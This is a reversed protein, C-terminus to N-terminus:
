ISVDKQLTRYTIGLFVLTFLVLIINDFIIAHPQYDSLFCSKIASVAYRPPVLFTLYYIAPAASKVDFIAGSLLLSPLLSVIITYESALFQNKVLSSILLGMTCSLLVYNLITMILIPISGRLPLHFVVFTFILCCSTGLLAILYYPILKSLIISLADIHKSKLFLITNRDYERAILLSTIFASILTIIGVLQGPILFFTSDNTENFRQRVNLFIPHKQKSDANQVELLPSLANIVYNQIINAKQASSANIYLIMKNLSLQRRNDIVLLADEHKQNFEIQAEKITLYPTLKLYESGNMQHYLNQCQNDYTNCVLGLNVNKIDLSLGFGYITILIMPLIFAIILISKDEKIQLIEKKILAKLRSLKVM